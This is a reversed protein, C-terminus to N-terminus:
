LVVQAKSKAEAEMNESYKLFFEITLKGNDSAHAGIKEISYEHADLGSIQPACAQRSVYHHCLHHIISPVHSCNVRDRPDVGVAVSRFLM